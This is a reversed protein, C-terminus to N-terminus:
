AEADLSEMATTPVQPGAVKSSVTLIVPAAGTLSNVERLDHM